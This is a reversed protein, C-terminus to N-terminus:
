RPLRRENQRTGQIFQSSSEGTKINESDKEIEFVEHNIIDDNLYKNGMILRGM